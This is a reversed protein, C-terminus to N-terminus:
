ANDSSLTLFKYSRPVGPRACPWLLCNSGTKARGSDRVKVLVYEAEALACSVLMQLALVPLSWALGQVICKYLATTISISLCGLRKSRRYGLCELVVQLLSSDYVGKMHWLLLLWDRRTMNLLAPALRNALHEGVSSLVM